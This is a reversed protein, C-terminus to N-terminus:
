DSLMERIFKRWGKDTMYLWFLDIVGMVKDEKM